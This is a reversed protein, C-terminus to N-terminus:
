IVPSSPAEQGPGPAQYGRHTRMRTDGGLNPEGMDFEPGEKAASNRSRPARVAGERGRDGGAQHRVGALWAQFRHPQATRADARM